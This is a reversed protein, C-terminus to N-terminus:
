IRTIPLQPIVPIFLPSRSDHMREQMQSRRAGAYYRVREWFVGFYVIGSM